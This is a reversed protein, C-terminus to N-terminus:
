RTTFRELRQRLVRNEHHLRQNEELLTLAVAIGPWDLELERRLRQARHMAAQAADDFLWPRASVNQPAIMGLGVVENLEDETIGCNLCLETYTVTVTVNAM